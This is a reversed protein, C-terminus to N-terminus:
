LTTPLLAISLRVEIWHLPSGHNKTTVQLHYFFLSFFKAWVHAPLLFGTLKVHFHSTFQKYSFDVLDSDDFFM